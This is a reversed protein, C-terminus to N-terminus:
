LANCNCHLWPSHSGLIQSHSFGHQEQTRNLLKVQKSPFLSSLLLPHLQLNFFAEIMNLHKSKKHAILHAKNVYGEHVRDTLHM